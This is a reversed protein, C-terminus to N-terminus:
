SVNFSMKGWTQHLKMALQTLLRRKAPNTVEVDLAEQIASLVERRVKLPLPICNPGHAASLDVIQQLWPIASEFVRHQLLCSALAALLDSITRNSLCDLVPGTGDILEILLLQDDSCLAERYASEIDGERLFSKVCKWIDKDNMRTNERTNGHTVTSFLSDSNRSQGHSMDRQDRMSSEPSTKRIFSRNVTSLPRRHSDTSANVSVSKNKSIGGTKNERVGMMRSTQASSRTHPVDVSPRPTSNQSTSPAYVSQSKGTNRINAPDLFNAGHSLGHLIKEVANELSSVKSQLVYLSEMTATTFGQLLDMLSSQKQEIQSLQKRISSIESETQLSSPVRAPHCEEVETITSDLSTRDKINPMYSRTKAATTEGKFLQDGESSNVSHHHVAAMFKNTFNDSVHNSASSYEQKEDIVGYENGTDQMSIVDVMVTEQTKNGSSNESEESQYHSVSTHMKSVAVDIQWESNNSRNCTDAFNPSGLRTPFPSRKKIMNTKSERSGVDKWMTSSACILDSSDDECLNDKVSSVMDVHDAMDQGEINRWQLLAHSVTDRVPKLKDFRCSELAQICSEKFPALFPGGSSGIEGLVQAAAKRTTWDSDKLTDQISRIATFLASHSLAGGAQILSKNLELMAPKALFHPNKLLKMTRALMKQLISVPPDIMNDIVRALCMSAGTQIQKNQEGLAEFLPKVLLVFVDGGGDQSNGFESALVGMTQVCMDRVVSDPDKLRKVISTVMKGLHLGVLVGHIKALVGMMRVCEKRVAPKQEADSDLICSLFPIIGDSSLSEATKELEQVGIQYTDRDAIKNIAVVVRHKLQFVAQQPTVKRPGKPRVENRTKM